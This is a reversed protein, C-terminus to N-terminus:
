HSIMSNFCQSLLNHNMCRIKPIIM